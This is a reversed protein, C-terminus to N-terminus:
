QHSLNQPLSQYKLAVVEMSVHLQTQPPCSVKAKVEAVNGELEAQATPAEVEPEDRTGGRGGIAELPLTTGRAWLLPLPFLHNRDNIM